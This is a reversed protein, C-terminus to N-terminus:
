MVWSVPLSTFLGPCPFEEVQAACDFEMAVQSVTQRLAAAAEVILVPVDHKVSVEFLSLKM